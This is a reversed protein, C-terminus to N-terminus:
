TINKFKRYLYFLFQLSITNNFPDSKLRMRTWHLKLLTGTALLYIMLRKPNFIKIYKIYKVYTYMYIFIYLINRYTYMFYTFYILIKLIKSFIKCLPNIIKQKSTVPVNSFSCQICM